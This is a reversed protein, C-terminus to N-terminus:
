ESPKSKDLRYFFTTTRMWISAASDRPITSDHSEWGAYIEDGRSGEISEQLVETFEEMTDASKDGSQDSADVLLITVAVQRDWVQNNGPDIEGGMSTVAAAPFAPLRSLRDIDIDGTRIVRAFLPKNTKPNKLERLRRVFNRIYAANNM